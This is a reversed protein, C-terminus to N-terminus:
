EKKFMKENYVRIHKKIDGEAKQLLLEYDIDKRNEVNLLNVQEQEKLTKQLLQLIGRIAKAVEVPDSDADKPEPIM